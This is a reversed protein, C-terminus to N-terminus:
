RAATGRYRYHTHISAGSHTAADHADVADVQAHVGDTVPTVRRDQEDAAGTRRHVPPLVVETFPERRTAPEHDAVVATIGPLGDRVRGPRRPIRLRVQGGVRDGHEVREPQAAGVEGTDRHAPRQRLPDRHVM